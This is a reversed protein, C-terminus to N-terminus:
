RTPTAVGVTVTSTGAQGLVRIRGHQDLAVFPAGMAQAARAALVGIVTKPQAAIAWGQDALRTVAEVCEMKEAASPRASGTVGIVGRRLEPVGNDADIVYVRM